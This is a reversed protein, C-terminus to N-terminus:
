FNTTWFIGIIVWGTLAIAWTIIIAHYISTPFWKQYDWKDGRIRNIIYNYAPYSLGFGIGVALLNPYWTGPILAIPNIIYTYWEPLLEYLVLAILGVRIILGTDHWQNSFVRKRTQHWEISWGNWFAHLIVLLYIM